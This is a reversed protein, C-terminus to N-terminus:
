GEQVSGERTDPEELHGLVAGEFDRLALGCATVLQPAVEALAATNQRAASAVGAFPSAVVTPLGLSRTALPALGPVTGGGALYLRAIGVGAAAAAYLRLLRSVTRLWDEGAAQLGDGGHLRAGAFSAARSFVVAEGDSVSLTTATAGIDAVAVVAPAAQACLRVARQQCFTEVDAAVATFGALEVASRRSEVQEARCAVLLVEALSPDAASLHLPEFDLAIEDAGFPLHRDAELTAEVELERDSLSADMAITKTVAASAPVAFAARKARCGARKAARRITASVAKVDSINGAKASGAPLTEVAWADLRYSQAAHSLEVLKVATSGIDVGLLSDSKRSFLAM